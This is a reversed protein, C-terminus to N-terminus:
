LGHRLGGVELVDLTPFGGLLRMLVIDLRGVLLDTDQSSLGTATYSVPGKPDTDKTNGEDGIESTEVIVGHPGPLGISGGREVVVGSVSGDADDLSDEDGDALEGDCLEGVDETTGLGVGEGDKEPHKTEDDDGHGLGGAINGTTGDEISETVRTDLDHLLDDKCVVDGCLPTTDRDTEDTKRVDDVEPSGRLDGGLDSGDVPPPTGAEEADAGGDSGEGDDEGEGDVLPPCLCLTEDGDVRVPGHGQEGGDVGEEDVNVGEAEEEDATAEEEEEKGEVKGLELGVAPGGTPDDGHEYDAAEHEDGEANPFVKSGLRDKVPSPPEVLIDVKGGGNAEKVEEAEVGRPDRSVVPGHDDHAVVVGAGGVEGVALREGQSDKTDGGTEDRKAGLVVLPDHDRTSANSHKADTEHDLVTGSARGVDLGDEGLNELTHTTAEETDGELDSSLDANTVLVDGGDGSVEEEEGLDTTSTTVCDDTSDLGVHKGTVVFLVKGHEGGGLASSDEGAGEAGDEFVGDAGRLPGSDDVSVIVVDVDEEDNGDNERHGGDDEAEDDVVALKVVLLVANAILQGTHPTQRDVASLGGLVRDVLVLNEDNPKAHCM